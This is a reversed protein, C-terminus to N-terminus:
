STTPRGSRAQKVAATISGAATIHNNKILVGDYLGARHNHAGGLRVAYKELARWGPTTKRTDVLSAKSGAILSVMRRTFTAIGSLRQLFNLATREGTLIAAAPGSLRALVKGPAVQAGEEVQPEFVLTADVQRFVRAALPLGAVVLDQKARLHAEAQLDLPILAQTTVDGIGLDEELALDILRDILPSTPFVTM